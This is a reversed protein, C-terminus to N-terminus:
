PEYSYIVSLYLSSFLKGKSLVYIVGVNPPCPQRFNLEGAAAERLSSSSRPECVESAQPVGMGEDDSMNAAKPTMDHFGVLYM